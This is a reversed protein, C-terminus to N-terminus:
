IPSYKITCMLYLMAILWVKLKQLLLCCTTVYFLHCDHNRNTESNTRRTVINDTDKFQNKFINNNTCEGLINIKLDDDTVTCHNKILILRVVPM